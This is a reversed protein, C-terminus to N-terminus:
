LWAAIGLKLGGVVEHPLPVITASQLPKELQGEFVKSGGIAPSFYTGLAMNIAVVRM